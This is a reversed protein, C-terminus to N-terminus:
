VIDDQLAVVHEPPYGDLATCAAKNAILPLGM